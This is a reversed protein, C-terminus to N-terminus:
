AGMVISVLEGEDMFFDINGEPFSVRREGWDEEDVDQEAYGNKVMLEVIQREDLDFVEKGFLTSEENEIDICALTPNEGEFFLVLGLENYRLVTTPEDAANDINEVEDPKGLLASVEEVPMRFRLDGIGEKISIAFNMDNPIKTCLYPSKEM